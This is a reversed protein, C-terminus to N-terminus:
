SLTRGFADTRFKGGRFLLRALDALIWVVMICLILTSLGSPDLLLYALWLVLQTAGQKKYGLYFNHAGLFGLFFVLLLAIGRRKPSRAPDQNPTYVPVTHPTEFRGTFKEVVPDPTPTPQPPDFPNVLMNDDRRDSM